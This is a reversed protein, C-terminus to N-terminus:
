TPGLVYRQGLIVEYAHRCTLKYTCLKCFLRCRDPHFKVLPLLQFFDDIIIAKLIHKNILNIEGTLSTAWKGRTKYFLVKPLSRQKRHINLNTTYYVFLNTVIGIECNSGTFGAQCICQYSNIQDVCTGHLCPSSLCEDVDLRFILM